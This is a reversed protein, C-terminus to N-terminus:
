IPEPDDDSDGQWKVNIAKIYEEPTDLDWAPSPRDVVSVDFTLVDQREALWKGLGTDGTLQSIDNWVRELRLLVPHGISGNYRPRVAIADPHHRLKQWIRQADEARVFPQDALFIAAPEGKGRQLVAELGLYLSSAIGAEPIRNVVSIVGEPAQAVNGVVVVTIWGLEDRTMRVVHGLLTTDRWPLASKPTGMRQSLGAALVVAVPETTSENTDM